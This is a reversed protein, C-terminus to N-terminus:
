PFPDLRERHVGLAEVFPSELVPRVGVLAHMVKFIPLPSHDEDFFTVGFGPAGSHAAELLRESSHARVASLVGDHRALPERMRATHFLWSGLPALWSAKIDCHIFAHTEPRDQEEFFRELDLGRFHHIVGISIYIHAPHDLNFANVVEFRCRLGEAEALRRARHVLAANYDTGILEVDAGLDAFAALWRVMYGPGCGIDVVRYPGPVGQDRLVDLMPELVAEIRRGQQFEASLRQIEAHARLLLADVYGADLVGDEGAPMSAVINAARRNGRERFVSVVEDRHVPLRELTEPDYSVIMDSIEPDDRTM